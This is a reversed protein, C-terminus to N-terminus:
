KLFKQPHHRCPFESLGNFSHFYFKSLMSFGIANSIGSSHFTKQPSRYNPISVLWPSLLTFSVSFHWKVNSMSNYSKSNARGPEPRVKNWYKTVM